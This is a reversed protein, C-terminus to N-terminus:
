WEIPHVQPRVGCGAEAALPLGLPGEVSRGFLPSRNPPAWGSPHRAPRSSSPQEMKKPSSSAYNQQIEPIQSYVSCVKTKPLGYKNFSCLATCSTTKKWLNKSTKTKTHKQIHRQKIRCPNAAAKNSPYGGVSEGTIISSPHNSFYLNRKEWRM